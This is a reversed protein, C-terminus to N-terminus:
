PVPCPTLMVNLAALRSGDSSSLLAASPDRRQSSGPISLTGVDATKGYAEPTPPRLRLSKFIRTYIYIHICIDTYTYMCGYMCAHMCAYMCVNMCAHMRVNMCVYTRVYMCLYVCTCVFSRRYVVFTFSLLFMTAYVSYMYM